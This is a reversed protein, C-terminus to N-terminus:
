LPDAQNEAFIEKQQEEDFATNELANILNFITKFDSVHARRTNLEAM